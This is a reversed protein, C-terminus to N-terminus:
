RRAVELNVRGLLCQVIHNQHMPKHPQLNRVLLVWQGRHDIPMVLRVATVGRQFDARPVPEPEEAFDGAREAGGADVNEARLTEGAGIADHEVGEIDRFRVASRQDRAVDALSELLNERIHQGAM